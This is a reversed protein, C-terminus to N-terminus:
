KEEKHSPQMPIPGLSDVTRHLEPIMEKGNTEWWWNWAEAMLDGPSKGLIAGFYKLSEALEDPLRVPTTNGYESM